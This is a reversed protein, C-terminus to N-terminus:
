EEFPEVGLDAVPHNCSFISAPFDIYNMATVDADRQLGLEPVYQM